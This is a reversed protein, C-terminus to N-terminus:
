EINEFMHGCKEIGSNIKLSELIKFFMTAYFM